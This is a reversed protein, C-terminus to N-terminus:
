ACFRKWASRPRKHPHATIFGRRSLIRWITAVAPVETLDGARRGWELGGVGVAREGPFHELHGGIRDGRQAVQHCTSAGPAFVYTDVATSVEVAGGAAWPAGLKVGVVSRAGAGAGWVQSCGTAPRQRSSGPRSLMHASCVFPRRRLRTALM